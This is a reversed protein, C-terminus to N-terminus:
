CIAHNQAILSPLFVLTSPFYTYHISQYEVQARGWPQSVWERLQQYYWISAAWMKTGWQFQGWGWLLTKGLTVNETPSDSVETAVVSYMLKEWHGIRSEESRQSHIEWSCERHLEGDWLRKWPAWHLVCQLTVFTFPRTPFESFQM